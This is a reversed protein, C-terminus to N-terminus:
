RNPEKLGKFVFLLAGVLLVITLVIWFAAGFLEGM